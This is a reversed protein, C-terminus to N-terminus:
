FFKTQKNKKNHCLPKRYRAVSGKVKNSNAKTHVILQEKAITFLKRSCKVKKSPSKSYNQLRKNTYRGNESSNFGHKRRHNLKWYKFHIQYIDFYEWQEGQTETFSNKSTTTLTGSYRSFVVNKDM